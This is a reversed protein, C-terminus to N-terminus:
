ETPQATTHNITTHEGSNKLARYGLFSIAGIDILHSVLETQTKVGDPIAIEKFPQNPQTIRIKGGEVVEIKVPGDLSIVDYTSPHNSQNQLQKARLQYERDTMCGSLVAVALALIISTSKM